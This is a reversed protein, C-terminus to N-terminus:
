LKKTQYPSVLIAENENEIEQFIKRGQVMYYTDYLIVYAMCYGYIIAYIMYTKDNVTYPGHIINM